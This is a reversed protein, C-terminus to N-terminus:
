APRTTPAHGAAATGRRALYADLDEHMVRGAAGSGPVFQLEIGLEWARRRVATSLCTRSLAPKLESRTHSRQILALSPLSNAVVMVSIVSAMRRRPGVGIRGGVAYAPALLAPFAMGQTDLLRGNVADSRPQLDGDYFDRWARTRYEDSLDFGGGLGGVLRGRGHRRGRGALLEIRACAAREAEGLPGRRGCEDGDPETDLDGGIGGRRTV